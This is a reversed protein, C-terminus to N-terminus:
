SCEKTLLDDLEIPEFPRNSTSGDTCMFECKCPDYRYQSEEINIIQGPKPFAQKPLPREFILGSLKTKLQMRNLRYRHSWLYKGYVEHTPLFPRYQDRNADKIFELAAWEVIKAALGYMLRYASAKKPDTKACLWAMTSAYCQVHQLNTFWVDLAEFAKHATLLCGKNDVIEKCIGDKSKKNNSRILIRRPIKELVSHKYKILTSKDDESTVAKIAAEYDDTWISLCFLKPLSVTIHAETIETGDFPILLKGPVFGLSQAKNLWYALAVYGGLCHGSFLQTPYSCENCTISHGICSPCDVGYPYLEILIDHRKIDKELRHLVTYWPANEYPYSLARHQDIFQFSPHVLKFGKYELLPLRNYLKSPMYTIDCLINFSVRVKMTSPHLGNIVTIHTFGRATLMNALEYAVEHFNPAVIDLDPIADDEYLKEGKLRMAYDIAQGGVLIHNNDKIFRAVVDLGDLILKTYVSHKQVIKEYVKTDKIFGTLQRQNGGTTEYIESEIVSQFQSDEAM